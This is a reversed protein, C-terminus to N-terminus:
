KQLELVHKFEFLHEETCIALFCGLLRYFESAQQVFAVRFYSVFTLHVEFPRQEIVLGLGFDHQLVFSVFIYDLVAFDKEIHRLNYFM